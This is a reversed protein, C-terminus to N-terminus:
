LIASRETDSFTVSCEVEDANKASRYMAFKKNVTDFTGKSNTTSYVASNAANFGFSNAQAVSELSAGIFMFKWGYKEEQEKVLNKVSEATYERSANELGDSFQTVLVREPRENEPLAALKEGSTVIAKGLADLLATSGRPNVLLESNAKQIDVFDEIVEVKDDFVYVSLICEGPQKKQDEITTKFGGKTDSWCSTMSGSRDLVILLFTKNSKM